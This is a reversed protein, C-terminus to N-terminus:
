SVEVGFVNFSVTEHNTKVRMVDGATMSIGLTAVFSDNAELPVSFYIYQEPSDEAGGIALSVSFLVYEASQNCVIISSVSTQTDVPVTYLDTLVDATPAKQGLIRLIEPM